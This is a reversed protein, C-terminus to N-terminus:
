VEKWGVFDCMFRKVTNAGATLTIVDGVSLSSAAYHEPIEVNFKRFLAELLEYNRDEELACGLEFEDSTGTWVPVFDSLDIKETPKNWNPDNFTRKYIYYRM